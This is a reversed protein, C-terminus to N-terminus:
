AEHTELLMHQGNTQLLDHAKKVEEDSGQAIVLYRGAQLHEQYAKEHENSIGAIQIASLLGGGILGADLGAVAGALAGAGVIMGLGPIALLGIGALAGLIPGVIVSIGMTKAAVKVPKDYVDPTKLSLDEDDAAAAVSEEDERAHGIISVNKASFGAAKLDKVASIAAHYDQYVGITAKM